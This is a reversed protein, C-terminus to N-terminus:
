LEEARSIVAALTVIGQALNIAEPFWTGNVQPLQLSRLGMMPPKNAPVKTLTRSLQKAARTLVTLSNTVEMILLSVSRLLALTM